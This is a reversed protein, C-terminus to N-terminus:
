QAALNFENCLGATGAVALFKREKAAFSTITITVTMLVARGQVTDRDPYKRERVEKNLARPPATPQPVARCAPLDRAGNGILYNSNEMSM